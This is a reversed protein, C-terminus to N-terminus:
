KPARNQKVQRQVEQKFSEEDESSKGWDILQFKAESVVHLHASTGDEGPEVHITVENGWSRLSMGTSAVLKGQDRYIDKVSWGLADAARLCAEFLADSAVPFGTWPGERTM